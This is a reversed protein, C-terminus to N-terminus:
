LLRRGTARDLPSSANTNLLAAVVCAIESDALGDNAIMLIWIIIIVTRRVVIARMQCTKRREGAVVGNVMHKIGDKILPVNWNVLFGLRHGSLKNM